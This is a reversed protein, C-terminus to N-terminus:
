DPEYLGDYVERALEAWPRNEWSVAEADPRSLGGARSGGLAGM